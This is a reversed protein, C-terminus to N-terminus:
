IGMNWLYNFTAFIFARQEQEMQQIFGLLMFTKETATYCLKTGNETALKRNKQEKLHTWNACILNIHVQNDV